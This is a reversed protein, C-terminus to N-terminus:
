PQTQSAAQSNRVEEEGLFKSLRESQAVIMGKRAGNAVAILEDVIPRLLTRRPTPM